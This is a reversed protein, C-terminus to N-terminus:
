WDPRLPLARRGVGSRCRHGRHPHQGARDAAATATTTAPCAQAAPTRPMSIEAPRSLGAVYRGVRHRDSQDARCHRGPPDRVHRGCQHRGRRGRPARPHRLHRPVARSRPRRESGAQRIARRVSRRLPRRRQKRQGQHHRDAQLWGPHLRGPGPHPHVGPDPHRRARPQAARPRSACWVTASGFM